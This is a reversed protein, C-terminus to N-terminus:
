DEEGKKVKVKVNEQEHVIRIEIGDRKYKEKNNTKMALLLKGKLDVENASLAMRQDRVGAYEEALDELADIKADETGPIRMQKPKKQKKPASPKSKKTSM